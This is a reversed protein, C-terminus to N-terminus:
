TIMTGFNSAGSAGQVMLVYGQLATWGTGANTFNGTISSNDTLTYSGLNTFDSDISSGTTLVLANTFLGAGGGTSIEGGNVSINGNNTWNPTVIFQNAGVLVTGTNAPATALTLSGTLT